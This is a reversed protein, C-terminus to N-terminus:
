IISDRTMNQKSWTSHTDVTDASCLAKILMTYESTRNERCRNPTWVTYGAATRWLKM